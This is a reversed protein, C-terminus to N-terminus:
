KISSSELYNIAEIPFYFEVMYSAADFIHMLYKLNINNKIQAITPIDIETSGPKYKLNKINYILWKCKDDIIICRNGNNDLVKNNFAAIRNKIHPNFRRIDVCVDRKFYDELINKMIVYNTYESQTSRNDGSADGNIIIRGSHQSYRKIFEKTAAATTTNDLVLEDIFFVKDDSKHAIVWSMPDVNFDCSIHLDLEPRYNLIKINDQTFYKVVSGASQKRPKGLWIHEYEDPKHIKCLQAQKIIDKSCFPNENYNIHIILADDHYLSNVENIIVDDDTDQNTSAYIKSGQKRITPNLINWSYKKFYQAEEIWVDDFDEFSKISEATLDNMGSFIIEAGTTRSVIKDKFCDFPLKYKNILIKFLKYNSQELNKQFERLCLLDRKLYLRDELFKRALFHSKGSSRGGKLIIYRGNFDFVPQLKIPYEWNFDIIM